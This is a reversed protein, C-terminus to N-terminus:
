RENIHFRKALMLVTGSVCSNDVYEIWLKKQSVHAALATSFLIKGSDQTIDFLLSTNNLACDAKVFPTDVKIFAYNPYQSMGVRYITTEISGAVSSTSLLLGLITCLMKM